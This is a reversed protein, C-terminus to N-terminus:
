KTEAEKEALFEDRAEEILVRKTAQSSLVGGFPREPRKQSKPTNQMKYPRERLVGLLKQGTVPCVGLKPKRKRYQLSVRGGPTRRFVRRYTRSKIRGTAM